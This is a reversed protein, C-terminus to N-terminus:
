RRRYPRWSRAGSWARAVPCVSPSKRRLGQSIPASATMCMACYGEQRGQDFGAAYGDAMGKAFGDERRHESASKHAGSRISDLEDVTPLGLEGNGDFLPPNWPRVM